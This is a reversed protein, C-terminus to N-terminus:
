PKQFIFNSSMKSLAFICSNKSILIKKKNKKLPLVSLASLVPFAPFYSIKRTKPRHNSTQVKSM